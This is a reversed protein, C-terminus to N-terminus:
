RGISFFCCFPLHRSFGSPWSIFPSMAAVTLKSIVFSTSRAIIVAAMLLESQHVTLEKREALTKASM